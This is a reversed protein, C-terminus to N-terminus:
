SSFNVKSVANSKISFFGLSGRCIAFHAFQPCGLLQHVSKNKTNHSRVCRYHRWGCCATVMSSIPSFRKKFRHM